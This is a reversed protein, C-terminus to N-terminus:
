DALYRRRAVCNKAYRGETLSSFCVGRSKGSAHVFFWHGVYMGTHWGSPSARSRFCLIDGLRLRDHVPRGGRGQRLATRPLALGLPAYLWVMLGSCDFAEPGAAGWVYPKGLALRIGRALRLRAEDLPVSGQRSPGALSTRSSLLTAACGILFTRRPLFLINSM